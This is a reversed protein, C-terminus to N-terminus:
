DRSLYGIWYRINLITDCVGFISCVLFVVAFVNAAFILALVTLAAIRGKGNFLTAIYVALSIFAFESPVTVFAHMVTASVNELRGAIGLIISAIFAPLLFVLLYMRPFRMDRIKIGDRYAGGLARRSNNIEKETVNEDFPSATLGNILAAFFFAILAIIGGFHLCYYLVYGETEELVHEAAYETAVKKYDPDDEDVREDRDVDGNEYLSRILGDFFPEDAHASVYSATVEAVSAHETLAVVGCGGFAGLVCMVYVVAARLLYKKLQVAFVLGIFAVSVFCVYVVSMVNYNLTLSLTGYSVIAFLPLYLGFRRYTFYLLVLAVPMLLIGILPFYGAAILAAPALMYLVLEWLPVKKQPLIRNKEIRKYREARKTKADVVYKKVATPM